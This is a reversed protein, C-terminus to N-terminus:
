LPNVLHYCSVNASLKIVLKNFFFRPVANRIDIAFLFTEWLNATFIVDHSKRSIISEKLEAPTISYWPLLKLILFTYDGPVLRVTFHRHVYLNPMWLFEGRQCISLEVLSYVLALSILAQRVTMKSLLGVWMTLQSVFTFAASTKQSIALFYFSIRILISWCHDCLRSFLLKLAEYLM